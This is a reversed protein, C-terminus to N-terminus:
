PISFEGDANSVTANNTGKVRITAGPMPNGREDVVRGKIDVPPLEPLPNKIETQKRVVVITKNDIAYSFPQNRFLEELATKLPVNKLRINFPTANKLENYRYFFFYGSQEG